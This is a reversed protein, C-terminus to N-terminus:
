QPPLVNSAFTEPMIMLTQEELLPWKPFVQSLLQLGFLLRPPIVAGGMLLCAALSGGGGPVFSGRIESFVFSWGGSFYSDAGGGLTCTDTGGLQFSM